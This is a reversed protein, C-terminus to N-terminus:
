NETPPLMALGKFWMRPDGNKTNPRYLSVSTKTTEDAGLFYAVKLKKNEPGQGQQAFFHFAELEFQTRVSHTADLISKELGVKTPEFVSFDIGLSALYIKNKAVLFNSQLPAETPRKLVPTTKTAFIVAKWNGYGNDRAIQDLALARSIQKTKSLAKADDKLRSLARTSTAM